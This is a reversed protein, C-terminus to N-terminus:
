SDWDNNVLELQDEDFDCYEKAIPEYISYRKDVFEVINCIRKGFSSKCPICGFEISEWASCDCAKIVIVKDGEKFKYKM